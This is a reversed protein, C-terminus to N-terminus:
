PRGRPRRRALEVVLKGDVDVLGAGAGRGVHVGVLDDAIPGDLQGAAIAEVLLLRDMGVIVDVHPLRGVVHEGGGDVHGRALGNGLFQQGGQFPKCRRQAVLRLLPVVDDLDASRMEGVGRRNAQPLFEAAVGPLELQRM